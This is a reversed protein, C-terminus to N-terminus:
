MELPSKCDPLVVPKIGSPTPLQLLMIDHRTNNDKGRYVVPKAKIQVGGDEPHDGYEAFVASGERVCHAATLIWRDGILSGGCLANGVRLKVHYRRQCPEGGIVRKQLDVGTSVAVDTGVQKTKKRNASCFTYWGRKEIFVVIHADKYRGRKPPLDITDKIWDLYRQNCIDMFAAPETCVYDMDGTFSMVGFISNKYVVGGGSDGSCVDVNPSQGCFWHHYSVKRYFFLNKTKLNNRLGQCNVVEIDVCQLSASEGPTRKKNPGGSTAAHGAIKVKKGLTPRNNCNPLAVPRIQTPTPLRLLMLDHTRKNNNKGTDTFKEPLATIEVQQGPGPHAGLIASITWGAEYCHAATLIWQDSILSGGCIFEEAGTGVILKVHYRREKPGCEQGGIIRKQLDVVTSLTVRKIYNRGATTAGYGAIQVKAHTNPRPTPHNDCDPLQIHEFHTPRPLKLLMIDHTKYNNDKFIVPKATIPVTEGPSTLFINNYM